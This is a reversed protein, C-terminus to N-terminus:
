TNSLAGYVPVSRRIPYSTAAIEGKTIMYGIGAKTQIYTPDRANDGLKQRLRGINVQLLHDAGSYEEGWVHDLLQSATIVRGANMALYSLMRYETATLNINEGRLSVLHKSFDVTLDGFCYAPLSTSESSSQVRRMVAKVRALLEDVGFPKTIYDDAGMELCKVKDMEGGRASLIIIPTQSWERIQHCVEFGDLKPMMIDLIILDPLEKEILGIAENGDTALIIEYDRAELNARVFKRIAPEDDAILIRPKRM